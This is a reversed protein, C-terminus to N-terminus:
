SRRRARLAMAGGLAVLGAFAMMVLPSATQPLRAYGTNNGSTGSATARNGTTTGSTTTTTTSRSGDLAIRTLRMNDPALRNYEVSVRNGVVLNSPVIVSADRNFRMTEGTDTRVVIVDNSVSVITGSVTTGTNSTGSQYTDQQAFGVSALCLIAVCLAGRVQIKM